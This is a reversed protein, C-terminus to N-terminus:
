RAEAEMQQLFRELKPVRAVAAQWHQLGVTLFGKTSEITGQSIAVIGIREKHLLAAYIDTRQGLEESTGMHRLTMAEALRTLAVAADGDEVTTVSVADNAPVVGVMITRGEGRELFFGKAGDSPGGILKMYADPIIEWSYARAHAEIVDWAGDRVRDNWFGMVYDTVVTTRNRAARPPAAAREAGVPRPRASTTGRQSQTSPANSEECAALLLAAAGFCIWCGCEPKM